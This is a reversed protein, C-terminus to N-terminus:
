LNSQKNKKYRALNKTNLFFAEIKRNSFHRKRTIKFKDLYYILSNLWANFTGEGIDSRDGVLHVYEVSKDFKIQFGLKALRNSVDPEEFYLFINEDFLEAKMFSVKRLFLCAGSLYLYKSHFLNLKNTVKVIFKDIVPIFYEPKVYFSLNGGGLQKFGLLSLNKNSEFHGTVTSAFAETFRVDPNVIAILDGKSNKVGVNNGQGYGGNRENRIFRVTTKYTDKLFKELVESDQAPSNDVVLVEFNGEVFEFISDICDQILDMSRYTVIVFSITSM